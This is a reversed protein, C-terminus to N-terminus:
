SDKTAKELNAQALAQNKLERQLNEEAKKMEQTIKSQRQRIDNSLEAIDAGRPLPASRGDDKGNSFDFHQERESPTMPQLTKLQESLPSFCSKDVISVDFKKPKVEIEIIKMHGPLSSIVNFSSFKM